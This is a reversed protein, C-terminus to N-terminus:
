ILLLNICFATCSFLTSLSVAFDSVISCVRAEAMSASSRVHWLLSSVTVIQQDNGEKKHQKVLVFAQGEQLVTM